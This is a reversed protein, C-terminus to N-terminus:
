GQTRTLGPTESSLHHKAASVWCWAKTGQAKNQFGEQKAKAVLEARKAETAGGGRLCVEHFQPVMLWQVMGVERGLVKYSSVAWCLWPGLVECKFNLNLGREWTITLHLSKGQRRMGVPGSQAFM